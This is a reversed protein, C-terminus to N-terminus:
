NNLPVQRHALLAQLELHLGKSPVLFSCWEGKVQVRFTPLWVNVARWPSLKVEGIDGVSLELTREKLFPSLYHIVLKDGNQQLRCLYRSESLLASFLIAAFFAIALFTHFPSASNLLRLPLLLALLLPAGFARFFVSGKM